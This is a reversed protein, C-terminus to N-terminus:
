LVQESYYYFLNHHFSLSVQVRAQTWTTRQYRGTGAQTARAASDQLELAFRRQVSQEVVVVLLISEVLVADIDENIM